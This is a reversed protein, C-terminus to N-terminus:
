GTVAFCPTSPHKQIALTPGSSPRGWGLLSVCMWLPRPLDRVSWEHRERKEEAVRLWGVERGACM